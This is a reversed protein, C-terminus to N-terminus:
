NLDLSIANDYDFIAEKANGQLALLDARMKYVALRKKMGDKPTWVELAKTYCKVAEPRPENAWVRRDVGDARRCWQEFPSLFFSNKVWMGLFFLLSIGLLFVIRRNM